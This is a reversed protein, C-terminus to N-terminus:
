GRAQVFCLTYGNPDRVSFQPGEGHAEHLNEVFVVNLQPSRLQEYLDRIRTTTVLLTAGGHPAPVRVDFTLEAKGLTVHGWFTVPGAAPYRQAESFGIATYWELTAAVDRAGFVTVAATISAAVDTPEVRARTSTSRPAKAGAAALVDIAARDGHMMAFELPTQGNADAADLDAGLEILVGLLDSRHREIAFHLATQGHYRGALRRDLADPTREVVERMLGAEGLAIASFIHHRGGRALLLSLAEHPVRGGPMHITMWGIAGMRDYDGTDIPDAGRDLLLGMLDLNGCAAAFYLAQAGHGEDRAHVLAPDEDILQRVALVDQARLAAVLTEVASASRADIAAKLARWSPFGHERAVDLLADALQAERNTRRLADLRDKALKRLFELSPRAPLKSTPM